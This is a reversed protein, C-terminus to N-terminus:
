CDTMPPLNGMPDVGMAECADRVSRLVTEEDAFQKAAQLIAHLGGARCIDKYFERSPEVMMSALAACGSQQIGPVSPHRMMCKVILDIGGLDAIESRNYENLALNQLAECACQQLYSNTPFCTMASLIVTIGGVRGISVANEDEWSLIWLRECGRQQLMPDHPVRKMAFLIDVIDNSGEILSYLGNRVSPECPDHLGMGSVGLGSVRRRM